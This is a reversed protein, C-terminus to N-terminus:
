SGRGEPCHAPLTPIGVSCENLWDDPVDARAAVRGAPGRRDASFLRVLCMVAGGALYLSARCTRM